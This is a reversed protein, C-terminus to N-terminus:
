VHARGIKQGSSFAVIRVHIYNISGYTEQEAETQDVTLVKRTDPLVHLLRDVEDAM